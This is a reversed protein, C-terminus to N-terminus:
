GLGISGARRYALPRATLLRTGRKTKGVRYEFTIEHRGDLRKNVQHIKVTKWGGRWFELEWIEGPSPIDDSNPFM